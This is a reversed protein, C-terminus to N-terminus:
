GQLILVTILSYSTNRESKCLLYLKKKWSSSIMRVESVQAGSSARGPDIKTEEKGQFLQALPLLRLPKGMCRVEESPFGVWWSLFCQAMLFFVLSPPIRWFMFHYHLWEPPNLCTFKWFWLIKWVPSPGSSSSAEESDRLIEKQSLRPVYDRNRFSQSHWPLLHCFLYAVFRPFNLLSNRCLIKKKIFQTHSEKM